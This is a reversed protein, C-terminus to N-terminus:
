VVRVTPVLSGNAEVAETFPRVIKPLQLFLKKKASLKGIPRQTHMERPMGTSCRRQFETPEIWHVRNSFSGLLFQVSM